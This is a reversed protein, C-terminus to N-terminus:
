VKGMGKLMQEMEARSQAFQIEHIEDFPFGLQEFQEELKDRNEAEYISVIFGDALNVYFQRFTADKGRFVNVANAAVEERKLGPARHITIYSPM